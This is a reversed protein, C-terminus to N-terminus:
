PHSPASAAPSLPVPPPPWASPFDLPPAVGLGAERLGIAASLGPWAGPAHGLATQSFSPGSLDATRGAPTAAALAPPEDVGRMGPVLLAVAAMGAAAAVPALWDRVRPRILLPAPPSSVPSALATLFGSSPRHHRLLEESRLGDALLAWAEWQARLAPESDWAAEVRAWDAQTARGDALASLSELLIPNVM